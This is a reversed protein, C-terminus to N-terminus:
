ILGDQPVVLSCRIREITVSSDVNRLDEEIAGASPREAPSKFRASISHAGQSLVSQRTEVSYGLAEVNAAAQAAGEEEDFEGLSLGYQLTGTERIVAADVGLSRLKEAAAEAQELSQLPPVYASFRIQSEREESQAPLVQAFRALRRRIERAKEEGGILVVRVCIEMPVDGVAELGASDAVLQQWSPLPESDSGSEAFETPSAEPSVLSDQAIPDGKDVPIEQASTFQTAAAESALVLRDANSETPAAAVVPERAVRGADIEPRLYFSYAWCVFNLLLLAILTKRM